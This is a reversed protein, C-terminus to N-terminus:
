NEHANREIMERNKSVWLNFEKIVEPYKITSLHIYNDILPLDTNFRIEYKLRSNKLLYIMVDYNCFIADIYNDKLKSILEACSQGYILEATGHNARNSISWLIIDDVVGFRNLQNFSKKINEKRVFIGDIYNTFIDSYFIEYQRKEPSRWVPNDPFKFDIEGSYLEEYLNKIKLPKYKFSINKEKAFKDLIERFKGKYEGDIVYQFPYRPYDEVGVVYVKRQEALANFTLFFLFLLIARSIM